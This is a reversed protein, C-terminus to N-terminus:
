QASQELNGLLSDLSEVLASLKFPKTLVADCPHEHCSCVGLFSAYRQLVMVRLGAQSRRASDVLKVCTIDDLRCGIVLAHFSSEGLAALAEAGTGVLTVDYGHQLRKAISWRMLADGDAVLIRPKPM